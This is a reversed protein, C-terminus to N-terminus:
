SRLKLEQLLLDRRHLSVSLLADNIMTLTPKKSRGYKKIHNLNILYSRSIRFFNFDKLLSSYIKLTKSVLLEEKNLLHFLTYNGKAECYIIDKLEIFSFGEQTPLILKEYRRNLNDKLIALKDNTLHFEKREKVALISQRLDELDFPKLLYDIASLKFAKLAYKAYATTFVVEFKPNPFYKFLSFGNEQPLEIDLFVLDPENEQIAKVGKAVSDVATIVEVGECFQNLMNELSVRIDLEDEIIIARLNM